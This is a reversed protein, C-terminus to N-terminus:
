RIEKCIEIFEKLHDDDLDNKLWNISVSTYRVNGKVYRLSNDIRDLSAQYNKNQCIDLILDVGTILCKGNQDEWLTKLYDLDIDTNKDRRKCSRLLHKFPTYIDKRNGCMKSLHEKNKESKLWNYNPNKQSKGSCSTSCFLRMGRRKSRNVDSTRRYFKKLCNDCTIWTYKM